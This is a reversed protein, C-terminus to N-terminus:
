AVLPCGRESNPNKFYALLTDALASAIRDQYSKTVLLKRTRANTLYGVEVLTAPVNNDHLVKLTRQHSWKPTEKLNTAVTSLSLDALAQDRQDYWYTEIGNIASSKVANVHVSVFVDPCTQNSKDLRDQLAVTTDTDRTTEVRAGLAILKAKLSLVVALTINKEKYNGWMTGPDTGGHGADLLVVRNALPRPPQPAVQQAAPSPDLRPKLDPQRGAAAQCPASSLSASSPLLTLALGFAARALIKFLSLPIGRTKRSM